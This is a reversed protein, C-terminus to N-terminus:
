GHLGGGEEPKQTTQAYEQNRMYIDKKCEFSADENALKIDLQLIKRGSVDDTNVKCSFNRVDETLLFEPKSVLTVKSPDHTDKVKDERAFYIGGKGNADQGQWYYCKTVLPEPYEGAANTVHTVSEKTVMLVKKHDDWEMNSSEMVYTSIHNTSDKAKDQLDVMAHTIRMNHAAFGMIMILGGLVITTVAMTVLLEVLSFGERKRKDM